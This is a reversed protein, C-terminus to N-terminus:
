AAIAEWDKAVERACAWHMEDNPSFSGCVPCINKSRIAEDFRAGLRAKEADIMEPTIGLKHAAEQVDQPDSNVDTYMPWFTRDLFEITVIALAEAPCFNLRGPWVDVVTYIGPFQGEYIETVTHIANPNHGPALIYFRDGLQFQDPTM